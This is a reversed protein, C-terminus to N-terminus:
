TVSFRVFCRVILHGISFSWSSCDPLYCLTVLSSATSVRCSCINLLNKITVSDSLEDVKFYFSEKTRLVLYECFFFITSEPSGSSESGQTCGVFLTTVKHAHATIQKDTDHGRHRMLTLVVTSEHYFMRMPFLFILESYAHVLLRNSNELSM